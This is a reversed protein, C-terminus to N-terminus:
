QRERDKSLVGDRLKPGHERRWGAFCLRGHGTWHKGLYAGEGQVLNFPM